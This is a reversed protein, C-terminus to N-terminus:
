DPEVFLYVEGRNALYPLRFDASVEPRYLYVWDQLSKSTEVEVLRLDAKCRDGLPQLEARESWSLERFNTLGCQAGLEWIVDSGNFFLYSPKHGLWSPSTTPEPTAAIFVWSCTLRPDDCLGGDMKASQKLYTPGFTQEVREMASLDRLRYPASLTQAANKQIELFLTMAAQADPAEIQPMWGILQSRGEGNSPEMAELLFFAALHPSLTALNALAVSSSSAVAFSTAALVGGAGATSKAARMLKGEPGITSVEELDEREIEEVEMGVADTINWALSQDPDLSYPSSSCGAVALSAAIFAIRFM